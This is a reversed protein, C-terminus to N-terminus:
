PSQLFKLLIPNVMQPNEYNANHGAGEIAQFDAHPVALMVKESNAFPLIRDKRGWILALPKNQKGVRQYTQGLNHMQMYRMTSLLAQKFGRYKMQVKFKKEFAPLKEPNVFAKKVGALVVRDGVLAMIYDGLIPTKALKVPLPQKIPFGAPAILCIKSVMDPHRDAFTVAVAGGMSLGVLHVPLKIELKQLIELLQQDYLERDYVLDPRDSFGRGYHDYRLVRFGAELLEDTNNDWIFFPTTFGHILVVTQGKEPGAMEFHVIGKSLKIFRGAASKRAADDILDKRLIAYVYSGVFVAAILTLVALVKLKSFGTQM